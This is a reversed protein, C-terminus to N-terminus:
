DGLVNVIKAPTRYNWTSIKIGDRANSAHCVQGNGIYLAVHNITGSSNTYFILDGPRMQSSNISKGYNAQSGSHHPLSVGFHAMVSMTFGSCDAGRTLSTGGWVYPNGLFQTAYNAIQTRKSSGAANGPKNGVGSGKSGSSGKNGSSGGKNGSSQPTEEIPTFKIAENLAYRVDVFDTAVYASTSDLEIEVWGDLQKLVAYRESNSIQTWIPSETTPETRANLRDTSVIAMLEAVNLAEQKAADGTLIFESKVYGTVPGSKIKYWEGDDTKELIEGASKSTMKGIIKGDEKPEERINLYNNVNSIGLNDYLNLVMTRLDLKRAENLAYRKDVFESSIYGDSIQIWGEQESIISYRENKLIQEVIQADPSPESRVNLKDATIVAMQKVQEFAEMKAADGTLVFESSIYGTLGGSSIQYWGETSDDLIECASGGLLKGIVKADKSASERMNLYGSVQVLGLNNYSDVVSKKQGDAESQALEEQSLTPEENALEATGLEDTLGAPAAEGTETEKVMRAKGPGAFTGGRALKVGVVVLLIVIIGGAAYMFYKMPDKGNRKNRAKNLRNKYDDSKQEAM